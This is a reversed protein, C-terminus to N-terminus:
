TDFRDGWRLRTQLKDYFTIENVSILKTVYESREMSVTDGPELPVGLQGDVTLMMDDWAGSEVVVDVKQKSSVILPRVNLTHPCIPTIILVQLDPAVLPGGASLSYATSGNPTAVILGDADYTAIYKGSIYTALKLMRSIPGKTVVAENLADSTNILLGNRYVNTRLMMREHMHFKGNIYDDMAQIANDPEIDTLFGFRGFRIPLMPIDVPAFIRSARLLTGDGGLVIAFNVTCLTPDDVALDSRELMGAADSELMISIDHLESWEILELALNIARDKETNLIIAAKKMDAYGADGEAPQPSIIYSCDESTFCLFIGNEYENYCIFDSKELLFNLYGQCLWLHM